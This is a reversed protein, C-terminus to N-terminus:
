RGEQLGEQRAEKAIEQYFRTERLGVTPIHLM